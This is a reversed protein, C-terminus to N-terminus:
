RSSVHSTRAGVDIFALTGNERDRAHLRSLAFPILDVAVPTLGALQVATVNAKVADKIAAVLLGHVVPGAETTSESIPYFDLLADAVPM